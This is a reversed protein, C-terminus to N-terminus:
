AVRLKRGHEDILALVARSNDGFRGNQAFHQLGRLFGQGDNCDSVFGGQEAVLSKLRPIANNVAICTTGQALEDDNEGDVATLIQEPKCGILDCVRKVGLAKNIGEPVVDISGDAKHRKLALKLGFLDIVAEFFAYWALTQEFDRDPPLLTLIGEKLEPRYPVDGHQPLRFVRRLPDLDIKDRFKALDNAAGAASEAMRWTPPPGPDVLELFQAGSEACIYNWHFGIGVCLGRAYDANKGTAVGVPYGLDRLGLLVAGVAPDVAGGHPGLTGDIDSLIAVIEPASTQTLTERRTNFPGGNYHFVKCRAVSNPVM